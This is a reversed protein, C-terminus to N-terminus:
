RYILNHLRHSSYISMYRFRYTFGSLCDFLFSEPLSCHCVLSVSHFLCVFFLFFICYSLLFSSFFFFSLYSLFFSLFSLFFSFILFFSLFSPLFFSLFFSGFWVLGFWVFCFTLGSGSFSCPIFIAVFNSRPQKVHLCCPPIVNPPVPPDRLVSKPAAVSLM